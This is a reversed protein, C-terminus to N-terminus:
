NNKLLIIEGITPVLVNLSDSENLLRVNKLPEDWSHNSLAYKSHHVTITNKTNLDFIVQKLQRPMTHIYKWDENYQGNELIAWDIKPFRTGIEKFHPGYGGDGSLFLTQSPSEILFSGWLTKNSSLGRGSFHRAPLCHIILNDYHVQENWDLEVLMKKNYGWYEFHAGVGLPCIVKGIKGRLEKVTKYDLHDWHDHTIVLLDIEPMNDSHFIDTGVFPTNVFSVPSAMYFVPDVLIKKGELQLLYSSHGFWVMLNSEQPLHKLDTQVVPVAKDPRLGKHNVFVFDLLAQWRNRDGTMMPTPIQNHFKGDIFNPSLLIRELREGSPTSGFSPNNLFLCVGTGLLIIFLLVIWFVIYKNFRKNM